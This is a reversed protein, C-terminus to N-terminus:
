IIAIERKIHISSTNIFVYSHSACGTKDGARMGGSLDVMCALKTLCLSLPCPPPVGPFQQQTIHQGKQPCQKIILQMGDQKITHPQGTTKSAFEIQKRRRFPRGDFLSSCAAQFTSCVMLLIRPMNNYETATNM